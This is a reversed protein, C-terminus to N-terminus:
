QGGASWFFPFQVLDYPSEIKISYRTPTDTLVQDRLEGGSSTDGEVPTFGFTVVEGGAAGWAYFSVENDVKVTEIARAVGATR